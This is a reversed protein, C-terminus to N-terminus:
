APAEQPTLRVLAVGAHVLVTDGAALEAVLGTEITAPRGAEDVCVALGSDADLRSVRM